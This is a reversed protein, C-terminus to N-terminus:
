LCAQHGKNESKDANIIVFFLLYEWEKQTKKLKTAVTLRACKPCSSGNLFNHPTVFFVHNCTNHTVKIKTRINKYEELFTYEEKFLSYVVSLFQENTKRRTMGRNDCYCKYCRSGTLFGHPTIKYVSGCKKHQTRLKINSGIYDDIFVYEDGVLSFVEKLFEDNTKRKAM